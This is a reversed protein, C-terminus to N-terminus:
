VAALMDFHADAHEIEVHHFRGCAFVLIDSAPITKGGRRARGALDCALRWVEDNIALEPLVAEFERLIKREREDGVGAWIELRIMACWAAEGARLLGEVRARVAPNGKPRMQHVWASTDVIKV